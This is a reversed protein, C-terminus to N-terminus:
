TTRIEGVLRHSRLVVMIVVTGGIDVIQGASITPKKPPSRPTHRFRSGGVFGRRTAAGAM